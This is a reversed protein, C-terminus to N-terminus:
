TVLRYLTVMLMYEGSCDFSDQLQNGDSVTSNYCITVSTDNPRITESIGVTNSNAECDLTINYQLSDINFLPLVITFSICGDSEDITSVNAEPM